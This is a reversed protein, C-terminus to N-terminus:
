CGKGSASSRCRAPAPRPATHHVLILGIDAMAGLLARAVGLPLGLLAAVEVVSRPTSCLEAVRRHEVGTLATVGRCPPGTSVLTEVALDYGPRTRGRTWPITAGCRRLGGKSGGPERV